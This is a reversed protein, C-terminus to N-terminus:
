SIGIIFLLTFAIGNKLGHLLIPAALGGTRERLYVLVLSLAFTDIAAVWLLPAGNGFQLHAAAFLISVVVASLWKPWKKRLGTYLFGRMLTEEALPPVVVLAIFVMTLELPTKVAEFGIQQEQELNLSPSIAQAIVAVVVYVIFYLGFGSLAYLFDVGKVKKWGIYSLPKQRLRLLVWVLGMVATGFLLMAWFQAVSNELWLETRDSGWGRFIPYILLLSGAIAQAVFYVAIAWLISSSPSWFDNAPKKKPEKQKNAVETV